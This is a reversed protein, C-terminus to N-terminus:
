FYSPFRAPFNNQSVFSRALFVGNMVFGSGADERGIVQETSRQDFNMIRLVTIKLKNSERM